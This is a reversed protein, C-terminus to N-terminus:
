PKTSKFISALKEELAAGRLNKAVIIGNPDILFNQPIAKVGYLVAAENEFSKLDSVQTWILGDKAIANIWAQKGNKNDLSVGLVTFGKDKYANFAKVVAPNEARCPACWSAWFDVLVYKGKFSSLSVPKDNVDNQTFDKAKSGLPTMGDLAKSKAQADLAAKSRNALTTAIALGLKSSKLEAPFGRYLTDTMEATVYGSAILAYTFYPSIPSSPNKRVYVITNSLASGLLNNTRSTVEKKLLEDTKYAESNAIKQIEASENAAFRTVKLYEDNAHAGSGTVTANHLSQDSVINIAGNDLMLNLKDKEASKGEKTLMITAIVSADVSGKFNYSGEKVVSSDTPKEAVADYKLYIKAPMSAINALSGNITFNKKTQAISQLSLICILLTGLMKLKETKLTKM